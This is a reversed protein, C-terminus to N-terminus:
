QTRAVGCALAHMQRYTFERPAGAGLDVIAAKDPDLDTDILDGLNEFRLM